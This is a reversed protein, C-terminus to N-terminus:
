SAPPATPSIVITRVATGVGPDVAINITAGDTSKQYSIPGDSFLRVASLDDPTIEDKVVPVTYANVGDEIEINTGLAFIRTLKGQVPWQPFPENGGVSIQVTKTFDEQRINAESVRASTARITLKAAREDMGVVLVGTGPAIRTRNSTNGEVAWVVPQDPSATAVYAASRELTGTSVPVATGDADAVTISAVAEPEKRIEVVEDDAVDGFLVAPVFRSASVVQWHHLFYNTRRSVPNYQTTNELSQDAIVFFDKTTMIAEAGPINFHERPIPIIREKTQMRDLNFAAALGDVDITAAFEPTAFLFLESNQAHTPMHAANYKTSPFKLTDSMARIKKLVTRAGEGNPNNLDRLSPVNVHYFGGNKEYEAFLSVTLLFEDWQDSTSPAELLTAIFSSLGGAELFARKLQNDDITLPYYNERNVTHFNSQVDIKHTGFIEKELYERDPDYVKAQILGVQVEEITNGFELMGRKFEGLPNNWSINRVEVSAIRNILADVFQNWQPKFEHLRALVDKVNAQTAEPIRNQYGLDAEQRIFNILKINDPTVAM